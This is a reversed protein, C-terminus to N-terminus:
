CPKRSMGRVSQWEVEQIREGDPENATHQRYCLPRAPWMRATSPLATGDVALDLDWPQRAAGAPRVPLVAGLALLGARGLV